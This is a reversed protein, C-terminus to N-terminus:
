SYFKYDKFIFTKKEFILNIDARISDMEIWETWKLPNLTRM